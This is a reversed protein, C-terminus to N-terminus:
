GFRCPTVSLVCSGWVCLKMGKERERVLADERTKANSHLSCYYSILAYARGTDSHTEEPTELKM